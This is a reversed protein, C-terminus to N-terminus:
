PMHRNHVFHELPLLLGSFYKRLHTLTSCHVVPSTLRHLFLQPSSVPLAKFLLLNDPCNMLFCRDEQLTTACYLAILRSSRLDFFRSSLPSSFHRHVQYSLIDHVAPYRHYKKRNSSVVECWPQHLPSSSSHSSKSYTAGNPLEFM